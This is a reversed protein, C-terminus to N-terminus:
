VGAAIQKHVREMLDKNLKTQRLHVVSFALLGLVLMACEFTWFGREEIHTLKPCSSVHYYLIYAM